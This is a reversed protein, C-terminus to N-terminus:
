AEMSAASFTGTTSICDTKPCEEMWCVSRYIWRSPVGLSAAFCAVAAMSAAIVGLPHAAFLGDWM